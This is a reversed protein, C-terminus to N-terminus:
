QVNDLICLALMLYIWKSAHFIDDLQHTSLDQDPCVAEMKQHGTSVSASHEELVNMVMYNYNIECELPGHYTVFSTGYITIKHFL